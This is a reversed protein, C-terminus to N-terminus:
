NKNQAASLQADLASIKKDKAALAQVTKAVFTEYEAVKLSYRTQLDKSTAVHQDARKQQMRLAQQMRRLNAMASEAQAQASHKEDEANELDHKAKELEVQVQELDLYAHALRTNLADIKSQSCGVSFALVAATTGVTTLTLKKM